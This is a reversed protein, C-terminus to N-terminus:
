GIAATANTVTVSGGDTDRNLIIMLLFLLGLLGLVVFLVSFPIIFPGTIYLFRVYVEFESLM